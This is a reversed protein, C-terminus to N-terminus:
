SKASAPTASLVDGQHGKPLVLAVVAGLLGGILAPVSVAVVTSHQNIRNM